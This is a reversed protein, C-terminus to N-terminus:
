PGVRHILQTDRDGVQLPGEVLINPIEIKKKLFFRRYDATNITTLSTQVEDLAHSYPATLLGLRAKDLELEAQKSFSCFIFRARLLGHKAM